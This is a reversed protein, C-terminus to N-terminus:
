DVNASIWKNAKFFWEKNVTSTKDCRPDNECYTVYDVFENIDVESAMKGHFKKGIGIGNPCLPFDLSDNVRKDIMAKEADDDTQYIGIMAALAYRRGYSIASGYAQPDQKLPPMALRSEIWQGSQHLLATVIIIKNELPEFTQAVALGNKALLGRCSDWVSQLDAYKSKFFPNESDKQAGKLEAQVKSLALALENIQPSKNEM